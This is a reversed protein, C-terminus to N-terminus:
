ASFGCLISGSRKDLSPTIAGFDHDRQYIGLAILIGISLSVVLARPLWTPVRQAWALM